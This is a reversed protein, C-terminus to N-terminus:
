SGAVSRVPLIVGTHSPDDPFGGVDANRIIRQYAAVPVTPNPGLWGTVLTVMPVYDERVFGPWPSTVYIATHASWGTTGDQVVMSLFSFRVAWKDPQESISRVVAPVMALGGLTTESEGGRVSSAQVVQAPPAVGRVLGNVTEVTANLKDARLAEGRTWRELHPIPSNDKTVAAM